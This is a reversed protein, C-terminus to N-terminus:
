RPVCIDHALVTQFYKIVAPRERARNGAEFANVEKKLQEARILEAECGKVHDSRRLKLQREREAAREAYAAIAEKYSKNGAIPDAKVHLKRFDVAHDGPNAATLIESM